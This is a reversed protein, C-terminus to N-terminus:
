GQKGEVRLELIGASIQLEAKFWDDVGYYIQFVQWCDNVIRFIGHRTCIINNGVYLLCIRGTAMGHAVNKGAIGLASPCHM